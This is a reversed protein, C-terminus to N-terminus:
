PRAAAQRHAAWQRAIGAWAQLRENGPQRAAAKEWSPVSTVAHTTIAAPPAQTWAPVSTLAQEADAPQWGAEMLFLIFRMPTAWAPGRAAWGWDTLWTHDRDIIFNHGHPDTHVLAGGHLARPDDAHRGWHEAISWLGPVDPATITGLEALLATARPVDPSGPTLDAPRGPIAAWGTIDWGGPHTVRWLLPPSLATVHPALAAGLHLRDREASTAHPGTGKIFVTGTETHLILRVDTSVGHGGPSTGAVPGTRQEIAERVPAPLQDWEATGAM